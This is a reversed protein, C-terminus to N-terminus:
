KEKILRLLEDKEKPMGVKILKGNKFLGPSGMAGAEVLENFDASYEVAADIKNEAVAKQVMEYLRKCTPCDSGVVRITTKGMLIAKM